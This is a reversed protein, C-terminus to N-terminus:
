AVKVECMGWVDPLRRFFNLYRAVASTNIINIRFPLKIKISFPLLIEVTILQGYSDNLINMYHKAMYVSLAEITEQARELHYGRSQSNSDLLHSLYLEHHSFFIAAAVLFDDSEIRKRIGELIYYRFNMAFRGNPEAFWVAKSKQYKRFFRVFREPVGSNQFIDKEM